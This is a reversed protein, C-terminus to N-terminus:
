SNLRMEYERISASAPGEGHVPDSIDPFPRLVGQSRVALVNRRRGVVIRPVRTLEDISSYSFRATTLFSRILLQDSEFVVSFSCVSRVGAAVVALLLAAYFAVGTWDARQVIMQQVCIFAFMIAGFAGVLRNRWFVIVTREQSADGM